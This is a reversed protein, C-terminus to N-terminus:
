RCTALDSLGIRARPALTSTPFIAVLTGWAREAADAHNTICFQWGAAFLLEDSYQGAPDSAFEELHDLAEHEYDAPPLPACMKHQRCRLYLARLRRSFDRHRRVLLRDRMYRDMHAVFAELQQDRNLLDLALWAAETAPASTPYHDVLDDLIAVAADHDGTAVAAQARALALDPASGAWAPTSLAVLVLLWRV